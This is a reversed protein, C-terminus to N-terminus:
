RLLEGRKTVGVKAGTYRGAPPVRIAAVAAAPLQDLPECDPVQLAPRSSSSRSWSLKQMVPPVYCRESVRLAELDSHAKTAIDKLRQETHQAGALQAARHTGKEWLITAKRKVLMDKRSDLEELRAEISSRWAPEAVKVQDKHSLGNGELEGLRSIERLLDPPVIEPMARSIQSLFALQPLPERASLAKEFLAFWASKSEASLEHRYVSQEEHLQVLKARIDVILNEVWRSRDQVEGSKVFAHMADKMLQAVGAADESNAAGV